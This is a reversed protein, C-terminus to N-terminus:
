YPSPPSGEGREGAKDGPWERSREGSRILDLGPGLGRLVRDDRGDLGGHGPLGDALDALFARDRREPYPLGGADETRARKEM